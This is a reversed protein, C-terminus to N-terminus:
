RALLLSLALCYLALLMGITGLCRNLRSDISERYIHKWTSLFLTPIPAALALYPKQIMWAGIAPLLSALAVPILVLLRAGKESLVTALTMKGAAADSRRDRLNNLAMLAAALLGPGLGWYLAPLASQWQPGLQLVASGWVAIPGFTILATFEGLGYHSLPLPGGTYAWALLACLLGTVLLLAPANRQWMLFIGLLLALALCTQFGRRISAPSIRGSACMRIPGLRDTGDVNRVFDYYDNALNAGMQLLLTCILTLLFTTADPTVGIHAVFGTGVLIPGAGAALTKPRVAQIWDPFSM